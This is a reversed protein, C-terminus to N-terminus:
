TTAPELSMFREFWDSLPIAALIAVFPVIPIYYRAMALILLHPVIFAVTILFLQFVALGRRIGVVLGIAALVLLPFAVIANLLELKLTRGGAWFAWANHVISRFILRPDHKYGDMARNGLERYFQVEDSVLPFQPFFRGRQKLGMANAIAVQEDVAQEMIEVNERDSDLHQIFYAGQFAALGGVTMTPIFEGSVRYNRVIWPTVVLVTAFGCIVMGGFTRRRLLRDPTKWIRYLFLAPLVPAVSSKILMALGNVVGAMAFGAWKQRVLAVVTLLVSAVLCLTLMIEPGGRSEAVVVGPHLFFVLAAITATTSSLGAERALIYTLVAAVGSFVFNVVQVAVLSTGFVAFILSLLLVYGPTRLMTLSTDPFVRYGNGQVLNLAIRDYGDPFREVGYAQPSHVQLHPLLGFLLAAKLVVVLLIIWRLRAIAVHSGTGERGAYEAPTRNQIYTSLHV